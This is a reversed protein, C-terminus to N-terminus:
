RGDFTAVHIFEIDDSRITEKAYAYDVAYEDGARKETTTAM